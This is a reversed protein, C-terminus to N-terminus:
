KNLFDYLMWLSLMRCELKGDRKKAMGKGALLTFMCTKMFLVLHPWKM